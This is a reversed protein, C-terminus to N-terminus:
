WAFVILLVSIINLLFPLLLSRRKGFPRKKNEMLIIKIIM